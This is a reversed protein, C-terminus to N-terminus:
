PPHTIHDACHKRLCLRATDARLRRLRQPKWGNERKGGHGGHGGYVGHIRHNSSHDSNSCRRGSMSLTFRHFVCQDEHDHRESRGAELRRGIVVGIREAGIGFALGADRLALHGHVDELFALDEGAGDAPVPHVDRRLVVALGLRRSLRPM